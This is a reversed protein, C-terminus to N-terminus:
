KGEGANHPGHSPGGGALHQGGDLAIMQGTMSPTELIFNVCNAIEELSPGHKLPLAELERSFDAPNQHVSALVPGPGIGNVRIEPALALALTRTLTWLGSKALTYTVFEQTLRWVRQDLINIICGGARDPLQYALSQSLVFPARLNTEINKQWSERTASLATDHVFSAANNVLISLKQGLAGAAKDILGSTAKDDFLDARVAVAKGGLASINGALEEAADKSTHYHVAVPHGTEALQLAIARGIRHAAGTVLAAGKEEGSM